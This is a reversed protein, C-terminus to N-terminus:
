EGRRKLATVAWLPDSGLVSSKMPSVDIATLDSWGAPKAAVLCDAIMRCHAAGDHLSRLWRSVAKSPFCRSSFTAVFLGGPRLLRHVEALLERPRVLYGFSLSLTALDFDADSYPLVPDVNLDRVLVETAFTNAELEEQNLGVTAVRDFRQSEPLHSDWSSCLDLVSLGCSGDFLLSEYLHDLASAAAADVHKDFVPAAYFDSDSRADFRFFDADTYPWATALPTDLSRAALTDVLASELFVRRGQLGIVQRGRRRPTRAEARRRCPSLVVAAGLFGLCRRRAPVSPQRGLRRPILEETRPRISGPVRAKHDSSPRPIAGACRLPGFHSWAFM